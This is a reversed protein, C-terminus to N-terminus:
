GGSLPPMVAVEEGGKLVTAPRACERDVAVLLSARVAALAPHRASCADLLGAVTAPGSWEVEEADRGAAQRLPGFYLVKARM